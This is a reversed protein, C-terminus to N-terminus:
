SPRSLRRRMQAEGPLSCQPVDSACLSSKPRLQVSGSRFATRNGSSLPAVTARMQCIAGPRASSGSTIYAPTWGAESNSDILFNQGLDRKPRVGFDAIRRLSPQTVM